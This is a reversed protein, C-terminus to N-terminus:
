LSVILDCAFWLIPASYRLTGRRYKLNSFDLQENLADAKEM